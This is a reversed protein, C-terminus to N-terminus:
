QLAAEILFNAQRTSLSPDINLLMRLAERAQVPGPADSLKVAVQGVVGKALALRDDTPVHLRACPPPLQWGGLGALWLGLRVLLAKLRTM